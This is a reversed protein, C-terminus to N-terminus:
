FLDLFIECAYKWDPLCPQAETSAGCHLGLSRLQFRPPSVQFGLTHTSLEIAPSGQTWSSHILPKWLFSHQGLVHGAKMRSCLRLRADESATSESLSKTWFALLLSDVDSVPFIFVSIPAPHSLWLLFLSPCGEVSSLFLGTHPM